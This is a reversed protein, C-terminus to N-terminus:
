HQIIFENSNLVAWFVDQLAVAVNGKHRDLTQQARGLEANTPRRALAAWYLANIKDGPSRGSAAVKSLFTGSDISTAKKVLDGNMMMLAQPITGNFTTTDDNEDTGFAITFQNLWGEREKVRDEEKGVAKDAETAALLSEYLEEARMQRLYFHSFAPREGLLPDDKRNKDNFKAALSYPESLVIWRILQKVDHSHDRFETALTDLLEPHTPPNHPGMDDIPKTFGYGFFHGWMRNVIAKPMYESHVIKEALVNRRNVKSVAGNKDIEAGDVFVPYAVKLVGNRLEYFLDANDMKKTEGMFDANVLNTSDVMRKNDPDKHEKIQTQRFFANLEWFQNQKWDNFPHNHCQTCQVQLGMFIQATKATAQIATKEKGEEIKGSLFNVAGNFGDEGFKNNGTATVMETVFRDYPKNKLFSGRLYQEMGERNVPSRQQDRASPPRGVLTTMWLSTWYRAYQRAYMEKNDPCIATDADSLLTDVLNKKRNLGKESVFRDLETVTPTRGLIDLFVRRCWESDSVMPSPKFGNDTWGKRILQNITETQSPLGAVKGPTEKSPTESSTAVAAALTTPENKKDVAVVNGISLAVIGISMASVALCNRGVRARAACFMRALRVM